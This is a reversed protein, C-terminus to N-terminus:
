AQHRDISTRHYRSPRSLNPNGRALSDVLEDTAAELNHSENRMVGIEVGHTFVNQGHSSGYGGEPAFTVTNSDALERWNDPVDVRFMHGETYTRYRSSPRDVRGTVTGSGNRTSSSR